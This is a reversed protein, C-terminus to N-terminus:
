IVNVEKFCIAIFTTLNKSIIRKPIYINNLQVNNAKLDTLSKAIFRKLIRNSTNADVYESMFIKNTTLNLAIFICKKVGKSVEKIIVDFYVDNRENESFIIPSNTVKKFTLSPCPTNSFSKKLLIHLHRKQITNVNFTKM